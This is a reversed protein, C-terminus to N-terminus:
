EKREPLLDSIYAWRVWFMPCSSMKGNIIILTFMEEDKEVLIFRFRDPVEVRANHWVSSIRWDAGSEFADAIQYREFYGDSYAPMIEVSYNDAAKEIQERNM